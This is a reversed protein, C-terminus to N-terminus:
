PPGRAGRNTRGPQADGPRAPIARASEAGCQASRTPPGGTGRWHEGPASMRSRRRTGGNWPCNMAREIRESIRVVGKTLRQNLAVRYYMLKYLM